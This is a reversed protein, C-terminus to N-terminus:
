DDEANEKEHDAEQSKSIEIKVAEAKKRATPESRKREDEQRATLVSHYARAICKDCIVLTARIRVSPMFVTDNGIQECVQCAVGDRNVTFPTFEVKGEVEETAEGPRAVIRDRCSQCVWRSDNGMMVRCVAPHGCLYCIREQGGKKPDRETYEVKADDEESVPPSDPERWMETDSGGLVSDRCPGCVLRFNGRIKVPMIADLGDCFYCGEVAASHIESPEPKFLRMTSALIDMSQQTAERQGATPVITHFLALTLQYFERATKTQGTESWVQSFHAQMLEICKIFIEANEEIKESVHKNM